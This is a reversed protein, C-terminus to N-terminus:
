RRTCPTAVLVCSVQRKSCLLVCFVHALRTAAPSLRCAALSHHCAGPWLSCVAYPPCSDVSALYLGRVSLRACLCALVFVHSCLTACPIRDVLASPLVLTSYVPRAHAYLRLTICPSPSCLPCLCWRSPHQDLLLWLSCVALRTM